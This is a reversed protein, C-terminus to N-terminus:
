GRERAATALGWGAVRGFRREIEEPAMGAAEALRGRMEQNDLDKRELRIMYERSVRYHESEIDVLRVRTKGTNTDQIESFPIVRLRGGVVCVLRSQADQEDDHSELLWRVAGYGLTRTYDIDYPIPDACRLAYGMTIDTVTLRHGREEFRREVERRLISALPIESLRIHGYPDKRTEVGPIKSLEEADLKEAVGEALVAVGDWRGEAGRKLISGELLDCVEELRVRNSPFEEPIITLTAGAAKGIGLALHGAKRGMIVVIFWRKTTRADEMLNLVQQTGVHRATEFGFTPMGEPLPLDNDITKPIHAVSIRGGSEKAVSYSAFATDEGGITVLHKVGLGELTAVTRKLDEPKTTPNARATRLISGGMVHIRSVDSIDLPRTMDQRGKMLHEFGDYFGVVELGSNVAEIVVASIASNIGPAP